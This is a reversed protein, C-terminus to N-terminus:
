RSNLRSGKKPPNNSKIHLKKQKEVTLKRGDPFFGLADRFSSFILQIEEISSKEIVFLIVFFCLLLTTIDAYSLIWSATGGQTSQDKQIRKGKSRM